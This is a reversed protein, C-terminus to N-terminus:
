PGVEIRQVWTIGGVHVVHLGEDALEPVGTGGVGCWNKPGVGGCDEWLLEM